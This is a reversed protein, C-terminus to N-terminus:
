AFLQREYVALVIDRKDIGTAEAVADIDNGMLPLLTYLGRIYFEVALERDKEAITRFVPAFKEQIEDSGGLLSSIYSVNSLRQTDTKLPMIGEAQIATEVKDTKAAEIIIDEQEDNDYSDTEKVPDEDAPELPQGNEFIPDNEHDFDETEPEDAAEPADPKQEEEDLLDNSGAKEGASITEACSDDKKDDESDVTEKPTSSPTNKKPDATKSSAPKVNGADHFDEAAQRSTESEDVAGSPEAHESLMPVKEMNLPVELLAASNEIVSIIIKALAEESINENFGTRTDEKAATNNVAAFLIYKRGRRVIGISANEGITISVEKTEVKGFIGKALYRALHRADNMSIKM